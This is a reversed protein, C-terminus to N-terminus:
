AGQGLPSMPAGPTQSHVQAEEPKQLEMADRMVEYKAVRKSIRMLFITAIGAALISLAVTEDTSSLLDRHILFGEALLMPGMVIMGISFPIIFSGMIMESTWIPKRPNREGLYCIVISIFGVVTLIAGIILRTGM